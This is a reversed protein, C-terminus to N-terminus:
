KQPVLVEHGESDYQKDYEEAKYEVEDDQGVNDFEGESLDHAEDLVSNFYSAEGISEVDQVSSGEIILRAFTPLHGSDMYIHEVASAKEHALEYKYGQRMLQAEYAEHVIRSNLIRGSLLKSVAVKDKACWDSVYGNTGDVFDPELESQVFYPDVLLVTFPGIKRIPTEKAPRAAPLPVENYSGAFKGMRKLLNRMDASGTYNNSPDAEFV